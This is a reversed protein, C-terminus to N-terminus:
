ARQGPALPLTFCIVAGGEPRNAARIQGGHAEVITRSIALGLGMGAPKSTVFPEFIRSLMAPPIGEGTDVVCVEAEKVGTRSSRIVLRRKEVPLDRMADMANLALNVIVQQIEVRDAIIKQLGTDLDSTLLVRKDYADARLMSTTEDITDNLDMDQVKFETKRLMKRIRAIVDSARQDDRKIDALIEAVEQLRPPDAQILLEAAGANNHIAGLPQNLEHAISASLEGMAVRRNMHAMESYRKQSEAEAFRRRRRQVLLASILLAQAVIIALAAAIQAIHERWYPRDAFLIECGVPLRKENLSWRRLARADAVCRAPSEVVARGPDSPSDALASRVLNGAMRGREEFSEASAATAGVGVYTEFIAYVPATSTSGIARLVDRPAYPRGDRDRYQALYLVISDSPEASVRAVLEPQPWGSLFEVTAAGANTALVQRATSELRRDIEGVGAIVLIRPSKPQLRRAIALTGAVDESTTAGKANPPLATADFGGKAVSHFVLRAGPWLANGHRLFFDLAPRTIAVVVDIRLAAYKKAFLATFEQEMSEVPFRQADLTESFLTIHRGTEEALSARMAGDVILFAALYPDTGNLILVRAEDEAADAVIPLCLGFLLIQLGAAAITWRM